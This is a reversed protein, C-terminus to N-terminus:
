RPLILIGLTASNNKHIASYSMDVFAMLSAHLLTLLVVNNLETRLLMAVSQNNKAAHLHGNRCSFFLETSDIRQQYQM